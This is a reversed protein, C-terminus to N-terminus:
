LNFLMNFSFQYEVFFDGVKGSEVCLKDVGEVDFKAKFMDVNKGCLRKPFSKGKLPETKSSNEQIELM